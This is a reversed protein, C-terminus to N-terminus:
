SIATSVAKTINEKEYNTISYHSEVWHQGDTTLYYMYGWYGVGYLLINESIPFFRQRDCTPDNNILPASSKEWNIGDFSEYTGAYGGACYFRGFAFATPVSSFADL